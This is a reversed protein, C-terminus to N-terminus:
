PNLNYITNRPWPCYLLVGHARGACMSINQQDYIEPWSNIKDQARTVCTMNPYPNGPDDRTIGVNAYVESVSIMVSSHGRSVRWPVLRWGIHQRRVNLAPEIKELDQLRTLEDRDIFKSFQGDSGFLRISQRRAM